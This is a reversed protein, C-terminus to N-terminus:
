RVREATRTRGDLYVLRAEEKALFYDRVRYVTAASAHDWRFSGDPMRLKPTCLGYRVWARVKKRDVGLDATTMLTEDDM